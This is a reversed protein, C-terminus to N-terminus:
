KVQQSTLKCSCMSKICYAHAILKKTEVVHFCEHCFLFLQNTIKLSSNLVSSIRRWWSLQILNSQQYYGPLCAALWWMKILIKGFGSECFYAVKLCKMCAMCSVIHNWNLLQQQKVVDERIIFQGGTWRISITDILILCVNAIWCSELMVQNSKPPWFDSTVTVECEDWIDWSCKWPM